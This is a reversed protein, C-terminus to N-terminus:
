PKQFNNDSGLKESEINGFIKCNSKLNGFLFNNEEKRGNMQRSEAGKFLGVLKRRKVVFDKV